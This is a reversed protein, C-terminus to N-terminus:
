FASFIGTPLNSNIRASEALQSISEKTRYIKKKDPNNTDMDTHITTGGSDNEQIFKIRHVPLIFKKNDSSQHFIIIM